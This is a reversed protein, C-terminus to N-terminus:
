ANEFGDLVAVLNDGLVDSIYGGEQVILTPLGATGLREGIRRFGNTTVALFALPDHESADLGLAVILADPRFAAIAAFAIELTDLYGDDSTGRPLPLNTNAGRGPGAGIEDAYGTFFPYYARPDGHISVTQVDARRYFIGQTGNGHHVDVDLVTVRDAGHSRLYQAAIAANNLFCFGGAQDAYAHHGPPRCLAYVPARGRQVLTAATLAVQASAVAGDWTGAGIPCATDAQYYGAKGVIHTPHITMNRGPHVNPLIEPAHDPLASWESWATRLFDLYDATHVAEIPGLGHDDSAVVAHGAATVARRFIAAREPVEPNATRNGRSIFASPAHIAHRDTAVVRM